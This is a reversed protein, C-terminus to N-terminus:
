SHPKANIFEHFRVITQTPPSMFIMYNSGRGRPPVGEVLVAQEFVWEAQGQVSGTLTCGRSRQAVHELSDGVEYTFFKKRIDLSFKSEKVKIGNIRPRDSCTRTL